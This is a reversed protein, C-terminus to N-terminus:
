KTWLRDLFDAAEAATARGERLRLAMAQCQERATWMYFTQDAVEDM